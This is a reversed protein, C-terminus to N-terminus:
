KNTKNKKTTFIESIEELKNAQNNKLIKETANIQQTINTKQTTPRQIIDGNAQYITEYTTAEIIIDPTELKKNFPKITNTNTNVWKKLPKNM